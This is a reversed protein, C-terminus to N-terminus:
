NFQYKRHQEIAATDQRERKRAVRDDAGRTRFSVPPVVVKPKVSDKSSRVLIDLSSAFANNRIEGLLLDAESSGVLLEQKVSATLVCGRELVEIASSKFNPTEKIIGVQSAM